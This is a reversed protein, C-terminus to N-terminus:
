AWAAVTPLANGSVADLLADFCAVGHKQASSLYSMIRYFKKAGEMTRFCGSVKQKVKTFRISREAENNTFPVRWDFAFRLIQEKYDRFRVLLSWRPGKPKRPPRGKVPKPTNLLIGEAVLADYRELYSELLKEPFAELGAAKLEERTRCMESLLQKLGLAWEEKYCEHIYVLERMLHANCFSHEVKWYNLYSRLFDHVLISDEMKPLVQIDHMAETGRKDHVAYYSWSGDCMCHAWRLKGGVRVGTEDCNLIKLTSVKHKIYSDADEVKDACDTLMNQITGGSIPIGLANLLQRVREVSVYGVTLLSLVTARLKNGYQKTGTIHEPFQGVIEQGGELPCSCALVKHAALRSIIELDYEYRTEAVRRACEEQRPCGLCRSPPYEKVEDPERVIKMGNGKHGTQGGPKRGSSEKLSKPAPKRYGDSSPPMSSNHSDKRKQKLALALSLEAIRQQLAGVEAAHQARMSEIEGSLRAVAATLESITALLQEVTQKETVATVAREAEIRGYKGGASCLKIGMHM